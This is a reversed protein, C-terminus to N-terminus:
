KSLKNNQYEGSHSTSQSHKKIAAVRLHVVISPWCEVKAQENV